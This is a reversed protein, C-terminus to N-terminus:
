AGGKGERRREYEARSIRRFRVHDGVALPFADGGDGTRLFRFPSRGLRWWGTPLTMTTVLSQPGAICVTGGPVDRVPTQKRPLRLGKPVGGMYAYGPAFGYMYIMYDGSMHANIVAETSQGTREAVEALDPALEADYCVPVERVAPAKLAAPEPTLASLSASLTEYDTILPDYGIFLATYSPVLETVGPLGAATVATQMAVVDAHIDPSIHDGLRLIVGCDGVPQALPTM